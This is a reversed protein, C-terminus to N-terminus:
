AHPHSDYRINAQAKCSCRHTTKAQVVTTLNDLFHSSEHRLREWEENMDSEIRELRQTMQLGLTAVAEKTQRTVLHSDRLTKADYVSAFNMCAGDKSKLSQM